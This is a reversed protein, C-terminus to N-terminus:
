ITDIHLYIFLKIDSLGPNEPTKKELEQERARLDDNKMSFTM